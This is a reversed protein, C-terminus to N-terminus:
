YDGMNAWVLSITGNFTQAGDISGTAIATNFYVPVPTTTGDFQASVALAGKAVAAEVNITASSTYATSPLMDVMAGTLSTNSAIASGLAFAGTAGASISTAITTTTTQAVSAIAGMLLIRGAPFTYVLTGKYEATTNVIAQPLAALTLVTRHVIQDAGYEVVSVTSGNKTGVGSAAGLDLLSAGGGGAAYTTVGFDTLSWTTGSLTAVAKSYDGSKVMFAKAGDAYFGTPFMTELQM